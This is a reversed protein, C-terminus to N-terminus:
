GWCVGLLLPCPCFSRPLGVDTVLTAQVKDGKETADVCMEM